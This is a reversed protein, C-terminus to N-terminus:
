VAVDAPDALEPYAAVGLMHEKGWAGLPVLAANLSVGAPTLSYEVRPVTEDFVERRVIGAEEMERLNSALVKESIGPLLRRLEGFRHAGEDLAWLITVKWRGEILGMAADIGCDYAGPRLTRAM